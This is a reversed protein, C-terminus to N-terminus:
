FPIDDDMDNRSTARGRDAVPAGDKQGGGHLKLDMVNLKIAARAEKSSKDSWAEVSPSGTVEVMSGKTLYDRVKAARDGFWVCKVWQTTAKDGFGIKDAISFQVVKTNNTTERLDADSGLRGTICMTSM